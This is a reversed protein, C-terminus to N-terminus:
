NAAEYSDVIQKSVWDRASVEYGNPAREIGLLTSVLAVRERKAKVGRPNEGGSYLTQEVEDLSTVKGAGLDCLQEVLEM